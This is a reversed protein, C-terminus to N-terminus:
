PITLGTAAAAPTLSPTTNGRGFEGSANRGWCLLSRRSIVLVNDEGTVAGFTVACTFATGGTIRNFRASAQVPEPTSRASTTGDGLQGDGNAGWCYTVATPAIGCSHRDGTTIQSLPTATAVVVPATSLTGTTAGLQGSENAGWCRVVGTAGSACTHADGGGALERFRQGGAVPVPRTRDTTSGDGLQGSTNAGWCWASGTLDLACTHDRGAAITAFAPANGVTVPTLARSTTGDGLQGRDNAGWCSARGDAALACSHAGGSTVMVYAGSIGPSPLSRSIGAGDGIQGQVGDGWCRVVGNPQVGCVHQMGASIGTFVTAVARPSLSATTTGDGLQGSGNRGWCFTGQDAIACAFGDGAAIRETGPLPPCDVRLDIRSTLNPQVTGSRTAPAPCASPLASVNLLATGAPLTLTYNGKADALATAGTTADTVLANPLIGRFPSSVTGIIVGDPIPAPPPAPATWGSFWPIKGSPGTVPIAGVYPAPTFISGAPPAAAPSLALASGTVPRLDPLFLDNESVLQGAASPLTTNADAANSLIASEASACGEGDAGEGLSTAGATVVNGLSLSAVNFQACTASGTVDLAIHPAYLFLNRITGATGRELVLARASAHSRNAPVSQAILTVNFLRPASRPTANSAAAGASSGNQGIIGAAFRQYDAQVAVHQADGRWGGTWRLGVGNATLFLNKLAVRGGAVLVGDNRTRNAQVDHVVTGSGVGSLQMGREAYQVRVYRLIGSDDLDNCGGYRANAVPDYDELCGGTQSRVAVPSTLTGSNVRAYGHIIVGGWCGPYKDAGTCTLEIPENLTGTAEIRGDRQVLVYSGVRGEIRTGAEIRLIGDTVVVPGDLRITSGRRWHETKALRTVRGAVGVHLVSATRAGGDAIAHNPSSRESVGSALLAAAWLAATTRSYM